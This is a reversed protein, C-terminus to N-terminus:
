TWSFLAYEEHGIELVGIGGLRARARRGEDFGERPQTAEAVLDHHDLVAAVGHHAFLELVGEGGVDCVEAVDADLGDDHM